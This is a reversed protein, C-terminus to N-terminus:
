EDFASRQYRLMKGSRLETQIGQQMGIDGNVVVLSIGTPQTKPKDYTADDQVTDPDFMVLDAWFGEKVQGRETMGFVRAPLSTMRRVAEQLTLIGEDRVYKALIRPFTGFLRPHPQGKLDPIGDSGVMMDPYKLNTVIDQEDIIFQICITRDGKPATLITHTLDCIDVSQETAIDKLM